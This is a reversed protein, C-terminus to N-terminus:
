KKVVNIFVIGSLLAIAALWYITQPSVVSGQLPKTVPVDIINQTPTANNVPTTTHTTEPVANPDPKVYYSPDLKPEPYARRTASKVRLSGADVRVKTKDPNKSRRVPATESVNSRSNRYSPNSGRTTSM